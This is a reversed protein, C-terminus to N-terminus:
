LFDIDSDYVNVIKPCVVGALVYLYTGFISELGETQYPRRECGSPGSSVIQNVCISVNLKPVKAAKHTTPTSNEGHERQRKRNQTKNVTIGGENMTLKTATSPCFTNSSQKSSMTSTSQPNTSAQRGTFLFFFFSMYTSLLKGKSLRLTPCFGWAISKLWRISTTGDMSINKSHRIFSVISIMIQDVELTYVYMKKLKCLWALCLWVIHTTNLKYLLFNVLEGAVEFANSNLFPDSENQFWHVTELITKGNYELIIPFCLFCM